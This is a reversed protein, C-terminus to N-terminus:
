VEQLVDPCTVTNGDCKLTLPIVGLDMRHVAIQIVVRTPTMRNMLSMMLFGGTVILVSHGGRRVLSVPSPSTSTVMTVLGSVM